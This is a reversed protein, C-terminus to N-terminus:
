TFIVYRYIYIDYWMQKRTPEVWTKRSQRRKEGGKDNPDSWSTWQGWECDEFQDLTEPFFFCSGVGPGQLNEGECSTYQKKKLGGSSPPSVQLYNERSRCKTNKLRNQNFGGFLVIVYRVKPFGSFWPSSLSKQHSINTGLLTVWWGKRWGLPVCLKEPPQRKKWGFFFTQVSFSFPSWRWTGFYLSNPNRCHYLSNTIDDIKKFRLTGLEFLRDAPLKGTYRPSHCSEMLRWNEGMFNLVEGRFFSPVPLHDKREKQPGLLGVKLPWVATLSWSHVLAVRWAVQSPCMKMRCDELRQDSRHFYTKLIQSAMIWVWIYMDVSETYTVM